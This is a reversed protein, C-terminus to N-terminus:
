DGRTQNRDQELIFSQITGAIRGPEDMHFHHHGDITEHRAHSLVQQREATKEASAWPAAPTAMLSLVPAEINELFDLAQEDTMVLSSIWNLAPDSRWEYHDGVRHASRECLM